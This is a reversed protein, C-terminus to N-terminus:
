SSGRTGSQQIIAYVGFTLSQGTSVTYFLRQDQSLVCNQVITATATNLSAGSAAAAENAGLGNTRMSIRQVATSTTIQAFRAASFWTTGGDPSTQLEVWGYNTGGTGTNATVNLLLDVAECAPVVGFVASNKFNGTGASASVAGSNSFVTRGVGASSMGVAM